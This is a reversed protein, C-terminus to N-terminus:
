VVLVLLLPAGVLFITLWPSYWRTGLWSLNIFPAYPFNLYTMLALLGGILLAALSGLLIADLPGKVGRIGKSLSSGILTLIIVSLLLLFLTRPFNTLSISAPESPFRVAGAFYLVILIAIVALLQILFKGFNM